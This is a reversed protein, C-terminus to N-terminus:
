KVYLSKLMRDDVINIRGEEGGSLIYNDRVSLCNIDNSHLGKIKYTSTKM